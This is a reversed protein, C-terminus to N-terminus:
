NGTLGDKSKRYNEKMFERREKIKLMTDMDMQQIKRQYELKKIQNDFKEEQKAEKAKEKELEKAQRAEFEVESVPIVDAEPALRYGVTAVPFAFFILLTNM